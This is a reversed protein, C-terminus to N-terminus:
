KSAQVLNIDSGVRLEYDVFPLPVVIREGERFNTARLFNVTTSSQDIKWSRNNNPAGSNDIVSILSVHTLKGLQVKGQADSHLEKQEHDNIWKYIVNLTIPIRPVPEGNFGLVHLAYQPGEKTLYIQHIAQSDQRQHIRIQKNFNLDLNRGSYM